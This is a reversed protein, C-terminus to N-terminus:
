TCAATDLCELCFCDSIVCYLYFSTKVIKSRLNFYGSIFCLRCCHFHAFFIVGCLVTYVVHNAVEWARFLFYCCGQNMFCAPKRPELIFVLKDSQKVIHLM